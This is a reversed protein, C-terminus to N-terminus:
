VILAQIISCPCRQNWCKPPLFLYTEIVEFDAQDVFYSGTEFYLISLLYMKLFAICAGVMRQLVAQEWGEPDPGSEQRHRRREWVM